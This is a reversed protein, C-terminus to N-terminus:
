STKCIKLTREAGEAQPTGNADSCSQIKIWPIGFAAVDACVIGNEIPQVLLTDGDDYIPKEETDHAEMKGYIQFHSGTMTEPFAIVFAAWYRMDIWESILSEGNEITVTEVLAHTGDGQDRYVQEIVGFAERQIDAM